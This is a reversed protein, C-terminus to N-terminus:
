HPFTPPWAAEKAGAMSDIVGKLGAAGSYREFVGTCEIPRQMTWGFVKHLAYVFMAGRFSGTGGGTLPEVRAFIGFLADEDDRLYSGLPFATCQPAGGARGASMAEFAAMEAHVAVIPLFAEPSLVRIAPEPAGAVLFRAGRERCYGSLAREVPISRMAGM